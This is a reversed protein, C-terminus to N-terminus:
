YETVFVPSSGNASIASIEGTYINDPSMQWSTIGKETGTLFIGKKDDDQAAPQLKIWIAEEDGNKDVHFFIRDPNAASILTSTSGNLTIGASVTAVDTENVNRGITKGTM